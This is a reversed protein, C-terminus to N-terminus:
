DDHQSVIVTTSMCGRPREVKGLIGVNALRDGVARAANLLVFFSSLVLTQVLSPEHYPFYHQEAM